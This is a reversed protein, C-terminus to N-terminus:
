KRKAAAIEAMSMGAFQDKMSAEQKKLAEDFMDKEALNTLGRALEKQQLFDPVLDFAGKRQQMVPPLAPATM